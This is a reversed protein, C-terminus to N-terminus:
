VALGIRCPEVCDQLQQRHLPPHQATGLGDCARGAESRTMLKM